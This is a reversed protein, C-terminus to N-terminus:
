FTVQWNIICIGKFVLARTITICRYNIWPQRQFYCKGRYLNLTTSLIYQIWSTLAWEEMGLNTVFFLLLFKIWSHACAVRSHIAVHILFIDCKRFGTDLLNIISYICRKIEICFKTKPFVYCKNIVSSFGLINLIQFVAPGLIFRLALNRTGFSEPNWFDRDLREQQLCAAEDIWTLEIQVTYAFCSDTHQVGWVCVCCM